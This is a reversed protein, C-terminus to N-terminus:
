NKRCYLLAIYPDMVNFAANGGINSTNNAVTKNYGDWNTDTRGADADKSNSGGLTNDNFSHTHNALEAVTQVHKEEGGVQGLTHAIAGPEGSNGIGIIGRGNAPAFRVWGTPCADLNFAMVAGRPVLGTADGGSTSTSNVSDYIDGPTTCKAGATDCYAVAGVKGQFLGVLGVSSPVVNTAVGVMTKFYGGAESWLGDAKLLGQKYQTSGGVNVPADVNNLPPNPPPSSWTGAALLMQAGFAVALIGFLTASKTLFTKM